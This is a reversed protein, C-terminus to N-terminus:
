LPEIYRTASKEVLPVSDPDDDVVTVGVLSKDVAESVGLTSVSKLATLELEEILVEM